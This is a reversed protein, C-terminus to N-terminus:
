WVHCSRSSGHDKIWLALLPYAVALTPETGGNSLIGGDSVFIDVMLVESAYLAMLAQIDLIKQKITIVLSKSEFVILRGTRRLEPPTHM